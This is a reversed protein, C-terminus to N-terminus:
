RGIVLSAVDNRIHPTLAVPEGNYSVEVGPAYGFLVRFPGRGSLDLQQGARNLDAYINRGTGDRVEVWSDASFRAVIRDEGGATVRIQMGNDGAERSIQIRDPAVQELAVQESAVGDPLVQRVESVAIVDAAPASELPESITLNMPSGTRGVAPDPAPARTDPVIPFDTWSADPELDAQGEGTASSLSERADSAVDDADAPGQSVEVREPWAAVLLLAVLLVVVLTLVTLVLGTHGHVARGVSSGLPVSSRSRPLGADPPPGPMQALARGIEEESWGLMRAYSRMYGRAFAPGPLDEFANEELARVSRVSLNLQAAVDDRTWGLEERSRALRGGVERVPANDEHESGTEASGRQGDRGQGDRRDDVM